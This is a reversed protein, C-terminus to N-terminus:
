YADMLRHPKLSDSMNPNHPGNYRFVCYHFYETSVPDRFDTCCIRCVLLVIRFCRAATSGNEPSSCSTHHSWTPHHRCPYLINGSCYLFSLVNEWLLWLDWTAGLRQQGAQYHNHMSTYQISSHTVYCGIHNQNWCNFQILRDTFAIHSLFFLLKLSLQLTKSSDRLM